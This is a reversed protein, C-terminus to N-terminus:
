DPPEAPLSHRSALRADLKNIAMLLGDMAMDIGNPSAAAHIALERWAAMLPTWWEKAEQLDNAMAYYRFILGRDIPTSPNRDLHDIVLLSPDAYLVSRLYRLRAVREEDKRHQAAAGGRAPVALAPRGAIIV